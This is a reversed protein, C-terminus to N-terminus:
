QSPARFTQEPVACRRARERERISLQRGSHFPRRILREASVDPSEYRLDIESWAGDKQVNLVFGGETTRRLRERVDVGEVLAFATVRACTEAPVGAAQLESFLASAEVVRGLDVPHWRGHEYVELGENGDSNMVVRDPVRNGKLMSRIGARALAHESLGSGRLATIFEGVDVRVGGRDWGVDLSLTMPASGVALAVAVTHMCARADLRVGFAGFRAHLDYFTAAAAILDIPLPGSADDLTAVEVLESFPLSEIADHEELMWLYRLSDVGPETRLAVAALLVPDANRALAAWRAFRVRLRPEDLAAVTAESPRTSVGLVSPEVGSACTLSSPASVGSPEGGVSDLLYSDAVKSAAQALLLDLEAVGPTMPPFHTLLLPLESSRVAHAELAGQLHGVAPACWEGGVAAVAEALRARDEDLLFFDESGSVALLPARCSRLEQELEVSAVDAYVGSALWAVIPGYLRDALREVVTQALVPAHLLVAGPEAGNRLLIASAITGLSIGRLLVAGPDGGALEVAVSWMAQADRELNNVSRVGDSAGVGSYDIILSALGLGQLQHCLVGYHFKTSAVSGSAELLHLVVPAGDGAPVFLGRLQLDAAVSVAVPFTGEPYLVRAVEANVNLAPMVAPPALCASWSGSLVVAIAAVLNRRM